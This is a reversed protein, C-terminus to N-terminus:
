SISNHYNNKQPIRIIVKVMVVIIERSKLRFSIRKRVKLPKILRIMLMSFRIM